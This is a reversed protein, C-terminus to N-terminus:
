KPYCVTNLLLHLEFASTFLFVHMCFSICGQMADCCFIKDREIEDRIDFEHPGSSTPGWLSILFSFKQDWTFTWVSINWILLLECLFCTHTPHLILPVSFLYICLFELAYHKQNPFVSVKSDFRLGQWEAGVTSPHIGKKFTGSWATGDLFYMKKENKKIPFCLAPTFFLIELFTILIRWRRCQLTGSIGNGPVQPHFIASTM